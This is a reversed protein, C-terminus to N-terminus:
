STNQRQQKKEGTKPIWARKNQTVDHIAKSTICKMGFKTPTPVPQAHRQLSLDITYM